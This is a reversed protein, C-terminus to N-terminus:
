HGAGRPRSSFLPTVGRKARRGGRRKAQIRQPGHAILTVGVAGPLHALAFTSFDLAAAHNEAIADSSSLMETLEPASHRTMYFAGVALRGLALCTLDAPQGPNLDTILDFRHDRVDGLFSVADQVHVTVRLDDGFIPRLVGAEEGEEVVILLRSALDMGGLIWTGMEGAGHGLCLFVGGPRSTALVRAMEGLPPTVTPGGGRTSLAECLRSYAQPPDSDFRRSMNSSGHTGPRM